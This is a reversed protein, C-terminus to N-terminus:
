AGAGGHGDGQGGGVARQEGGALHCQGGRSGELDRSIGCGQVGAVGAVGFSQDRFEEIWNEIFWGVGQIGSGWDKCRLGWARVLFRLGQVGAGIDRFGLGWDETCGVGSGQVFM